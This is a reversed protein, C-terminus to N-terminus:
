SQLLGFMQVTCLCIRWQTSLAIWGPTPKSRPSLSLSTQILLWKCYNVKMITLYELQQQILKLTPPPDQSTLTLPFRVRLVSLPKILVDGMEVIGGTTRSCYPQLWVTSIGPLALMIITLQPIICYSNIVRSKNMTVSALPSMTRHLHATDDWLSHEPTQLVKGLAVNLSTFTFYGVPLHM